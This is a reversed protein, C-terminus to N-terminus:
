QWLNNFYSKFENAINKDDILVSAEFNTEFANYSYNHSGIVIKQNDFIMLKTHLLGGFDRINTKVGNDELIRATERTNLIAKVNVGFKAKRILLQNFKQISYAPQDKYWRWDFVIIDIEQSANLIEPGVVEFFKNGIITKIM